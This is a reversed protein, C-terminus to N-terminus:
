IDPLACHGPMVIQLVRPSAVLCAEDDALEGLVIDIDAAHGGLSAADGEHVGLTMDQGALLVEPPYFPDLPDLTNLGRAPWSSYQVYELIVTDHVDLDPSNDPVDYEKAQMRILLFFRALFVSRFTVVRCRFTIAPIRFTVVPGGSIAASGRLTVARGSFTLSGVHEEKELTDGLFETRSDCRGIM